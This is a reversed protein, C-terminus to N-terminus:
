HAALKLTLTTSTHKADTVKLTFSLSGAKHKKVKTQLSKSEALLPAVVTLTVSASPKKLTVVLRGGTLAVSKAAGGAVGLGKILTTTTCKKKKGKTTCVRHTVIASRSFKLGAPLGLAVVSVNPAGKAHTVKLKVDPHGTSLGKTSGSATPKQQCGTFTIPASSTHTQGGQGTFNGTVNAPKCDTTFARGGSPGTVDLTLSTLPIDPVNSFTVSNTSLNVAGNITLNFPAGFTIAFTPSTASGSLSVTGTLKIPVLPSTATATGITCGPGGTLCPLLPGANPTLGSPFTVTITKNAAENAAQTIGLALAANGKSDAAIAASLSPSYPLGSCGTVTLPATVPTASVGSQSDATMTVNAAPSPCSTPLRLNTLSVNIETIGATLNTFAVNLGSAGLTIDAVSAPAAPTSGLVLALGGVDTAKPPAVLYLTVSQTGALTTLIGSGVQCSASPTGSLLCAGGAINENALLGPPLVLAVDKVTDGTTSAFKADFGTTPSSGATTGATQNLSLSPTFDALATAPLVAFAAVATVLGLLARRLPLPV